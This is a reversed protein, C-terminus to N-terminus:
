LIYGEGDRHLWVLPCVCIGSDLVRERYRDLSLHDQREGSDCVLYPRKIGNKKTGVGHYFLKIGDGIEIAKCGKWRTEQLCLIRITRRKMFDAIERTKGTLTGINLSGVRVLTKLRPRGDRPLGRKKVVPPLDSGPSATANVGNCISGEM